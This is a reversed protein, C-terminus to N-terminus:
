IDNLLMIGYLSMLAFPLSPLLWSLTILWKTRRAYYSYTLAHFSAAALVCLAPLFWFVSILSRAAGDMGPGGELELCVLALAIAAFPSYIWVGHRFFGKSDM